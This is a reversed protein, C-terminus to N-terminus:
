LREAAPFLGPVDPLGPGSVLLAVNAPESAATVGAIV